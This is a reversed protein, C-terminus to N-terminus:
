IMETFKLGGMLTITMNDEKDIQIDTVIKQFLAADFQVLPESIESLATRLERINGQMESIRSEFAGKRDAKLADIQRKIEMSQAHYVDLALYGKANLQEIMLLKANLEAISVSIQGAKENAKKYQMATYDLKAALVGLVDEQGFRLKNVMTLFGDYIREEDYIYSDCARADKAHLSCVWKAGASKARRKFYSGCEACRIRSTLPYPTVPSVNAYVNRRSELLEQVKQFVEKTIIPDHTGTAYYQDQQGVNRHQKFPVDTERVYKQYLCDGIYRENRLIYTITNSEWIKGTKSPVGAEQLQAAIESSSIGNLYKQFIDRVIQAEPEYVELAKNVLHFGYPANRDVYEGLEMRKVISLRQNQSIAKSEEQAIASFTNLLMEDGMATTNIGEKEFQVGVGLLKLKRVYALAEKVNRAFRSVSKTIILDIKKQECMRIMRQFEPRNDAKMGSKNDDAFVEVLEWGPKNKVLNTYVKIQKAYSNQQDALNSSVRAYPAVRLTKVIQGKAPAILTAKAM